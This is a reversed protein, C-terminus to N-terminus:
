DGKLRRLKELNDKSHEYGEEESSIRANDVKGVYTKSHYEVEVAGASQQKSSNRDSINDRNCDSNLSGSNGTINITILNNLDLEKIYSLISRLVLPTIIYYMLTSFCLIIIAISYLDM